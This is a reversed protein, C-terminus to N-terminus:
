TIAGQLPKYYKRIKEALNDLISRIKYLRDAEDVMPSSDIYRWFNWIQEFKNRSM